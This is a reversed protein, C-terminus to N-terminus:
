KSMEIIAAVTRLDEIADEIRNIKPPNGKEVLGTVYRMQEVYMDANQYPITKRTSEDKPCFFLEHEGYNWVLNGESGRIEIRKKYRQNLCDTSFSVLVGNDAALLGTALSKSVYSALPRVDGLLWRIVNIIHIDDWIIGAYEDFPYEHIKEYAYGNEFTAYNIKGVMHLSEKLKQLGREFRYNNGVIFMNTYKEMHHEAARDTTAINPVHDSLPKEIFILDPRPSNKLLKNVVDLHTPTPTCVLALECDPTSIDMFEKDVVAVDTYGLFELTELHKKGVSGNGILLIRM